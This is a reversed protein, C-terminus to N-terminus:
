TVVAENKVLRGIAEVYRKLCPMPARMATLMCSARCRRPVQQLRLGRRLLFGFPLCALRLSGSPIRRHNLVTTATRILDM